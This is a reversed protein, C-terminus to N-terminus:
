AHRLERVAEILREVDRDNVHLHPSFRLARGRRSIHINKVRLAGVMDGSYGEPLEAGFMHPCRQSDPPLRFGLSALESSI